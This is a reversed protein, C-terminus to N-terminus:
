IKGGIKSVPELYDGHIKVITCENHVIPPAGDVSDHTSIVIPHINESALAQELLRDFNTTVIVKLYGLKVLRAISLHAPTPIKIGEEKEEETPEFFERLLKQRETRTRALEAIIRSYSPEKNYKDKYWKDPKPECSEGHLLALREILKLVVEWGTPISASRSIGSGLLLAYVGKNSFITHALALLPDIM